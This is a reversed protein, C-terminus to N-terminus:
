RLHFRTRCDWGMLEIRGNRLGTSNRLASVKVVYEVDRLGLIEGANVTLLLRSITQVFETSRNVAVFFFGYVEGAIIRDFRSLM